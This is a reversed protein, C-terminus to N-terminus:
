KLDWLKIEGDSSGSVVRKGDPSVSVSNIDINHGKLNFLSKGTAIDWVKIVGDAGGSVLKKGNPTFSM